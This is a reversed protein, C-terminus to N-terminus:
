VKYVDYRELTADFYTYLDNLFDVVQLPTSEASMSTFGVIDSFFITVNEFHEAAVQKGQFYSIIISSLKTVLNRLM